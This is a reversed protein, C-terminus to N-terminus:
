FNLENKQPVNYTCHEVSDRIELVDSLWLDCCLGDPANRLAKGGPQPFKENEGHLSITEPTGGESAFRQYGRCRLRDFRVNPVEKWRNKHAEFPGARRLDCM